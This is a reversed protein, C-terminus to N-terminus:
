KSRSPEPNMSLFSSTPRALCSPCASEFSSILARMTCISLDPSPLILKCSNELQHISSNAYWPSISLNVLFRRRNQSLTRLAAASGAGTPRAPTPQPPCKPHFARVEALLETLAPSTFTEMPQFSPMPTLAEACTTPCLSGFSSYWPAMSCIFAGPLVTMTNWTVRLSRSVVVGSSTWVIRFAMALTMSRRQVAALAARTLAAWFSPMSTCPEISPLGELPLPADTTVM